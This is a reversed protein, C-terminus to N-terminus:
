AERFARKELARQQILAIVIGVLLGGVLGLLTTRLAERNMPEVPLDATEVINILVPARVEEIRAQELTQALSTYIQQRMQVERMLRDHEMDLQPASIFERNVALRRISLFRLM